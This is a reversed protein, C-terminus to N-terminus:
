LTRTRQRPSTDQDRINGETKQKVNVLGARRSPRARCAVGALRSQASPAAIRCSLAVFGLYEDSGWVVGCVSPESDRGQLARRNEIKQRLM